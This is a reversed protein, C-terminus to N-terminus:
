KIKMPDERSTLARSIAKGTNVSKVLRIGASPSAM